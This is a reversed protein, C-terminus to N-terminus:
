GASAVQEGARGVYEVITRVVEPDRLIKRHGLGDTTVLPVGITEVFDVVDDYPTQRDGRDTLVLTPRPDVHAAQVRADFERVGVGVFERVERELVRRTRPGFGLAEQFQDLLGNFEVMPAVFVLREAGLWGYRMALYTSITGMSHAVVAEAPGFECFVADLARAFEVGNTRRPGAPGHDSDGHAPADFMVVRLGSEVLPEVLAGFQSGRGGWGHVLYVVPGDGWVLGRVVHGQALVEFPEGGEPVPLDGMRPPASFWLDRAVRGTRAPAVHEGYRFFGALALNRFRVITSKDLALM